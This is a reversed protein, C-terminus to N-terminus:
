VVPIALEFGASLLSTRKEHKNHKTNNTAEAFLQDSKSLLSMQRDLVEVIVRGQRLKPQQTVSIVANNLQKTNAYAAAGV